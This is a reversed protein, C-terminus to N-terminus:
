DTTVHEHEIITPMPLEARATLKLEKVAELMRNLQDDDMESVSTHSFDVERPLFNGVFKLFDAPRSQFVAQLAATLKTPAIIKESAPRQLFALTENFVHQALRNRSGKKRGPELM